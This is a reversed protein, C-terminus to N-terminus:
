KGGKKEERIKAKSKSRFIQKRQKKERQKKKEELAQTEAQHRGVRESMATKLQAQKHEYSARLMKLM